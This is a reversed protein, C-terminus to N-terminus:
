FDRLAHHATATTIFRRHLACLVGIFDLTDSPNAKYNEVFDIYWELAVGDLLNKLISVRYSDAEPGGYLMTRMWAVLKELWRIFATHDDVGTFKTPMDLRPPRIRTPLDLEEGLQKEVIRTI